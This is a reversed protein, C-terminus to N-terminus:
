PPPASTASNILRSIGNKMLAVNFNLVYGVRFGGFRLYSLLQARHVDLIAEVAKVELVVCNEVLLDLRYGTEIVVGDYVLPLTLQRQYAIGAKGIEHALCAEYANELLGPGLARHVKLACGLVREGIEDEVV